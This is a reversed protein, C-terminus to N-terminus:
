LELKQAIDKMYQSITLRQPCHKECSHCAICSSAKGSSETLKQYVPVIKWDLYNIQLLVLDTEPHKTLIEELLAANGHYSFGIRKALGEAKKERLFRFEDIKEATAFNKDNLWHLMLVDFYSVGCRRLEEEFYKQCDEYCQFLYGQLKDALRFTERPKREAVCKRIGLESNGDM